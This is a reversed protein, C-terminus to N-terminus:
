AVPLHVQLVAHVEDLSVENHYEGAHLGGLAHLNDCHRLTLEDGEHAVVEMIKQEGAM